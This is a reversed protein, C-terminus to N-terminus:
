LSPFLSCPNFVARARPVARRPRTRQSEDAELPTIMQTRAMSLDAGDELPGRWRSWTAAPSSPLSRRASSRRTPMRYGKRMISRYVFPSLGMSQFGGTKGKGKAKRTPGGDEDEDEDEDEGGPFAVTDEASANFSSVNFDDAIDDDDDDDFALEEDDDFASTAEEAAPPRRKGMGAGGRGKGKGGM